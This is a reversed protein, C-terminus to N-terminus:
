GLYSLIQRAAERGSTFAVDGGKGQVGVCDGALFLNEVGPVRVGPRDKATQGVRPEFGDVMKLRLVREWEVDDMIGPFMTELLDMFRKQEADLLARDDLTEVALPRFFTALQKGEPATSPDINSTFQGLAVPDATVFFSDMDSVPEALCLDVSIGATPILSACKEKFESPLGDGVLEPVKQIPIALVVTRASYEKELVRVTKVKGNEIDIARVRSNLTLEGSEKIENSLAENIQSTGGRPYAMQEGARMARKLFKAFEGASAAEIDFSVLGMMSLLAYFDRVTQRKAGPIAKALPVDALKDVKSVILRRVGNGIILKDSWPLKSSGLFSPVGTPMPVFEGDIYLQPKGYSLFEIKHGIEGLAAAAPGASGYSIIHIGYDVLFGDKRDFASRGGLHGTAELVQVELGNHALIAAATLGGWGGGIVIVDPAM